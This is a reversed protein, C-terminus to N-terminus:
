SGSQASWGNRTVVASHTTISNTESTWLQNSDVAMPLNGPNNAIQVTLFTSDRPNFRTTGPLSAVAESNQQTVDSAGPKSARVRVQFVVRQAEAATLSVPNVPVVENGAEDFYRIPFVSFSTGAATAQALLADFDAQEADSVVRQFIQSGVSTNISTRFSTLGAPLLALLSVVAFAVVGLALAVEVLSFGGRQSPPYQATSPNM